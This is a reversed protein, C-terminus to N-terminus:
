TISVSVTSLLLAILEGQRRTDTKTFLSRLQSKLTERSVKLEEGIEQLDKGTVLYEALRVEAPTLGLFAQLSVSNITADCRPYTLFLVAQAQPMATLEPLGRLPYATLMAFSRLGDSLRMMNSRDAGETAIEDRIAAALLDAFQQAQRASRPKVQGNSILLYDARGLASHGAANAYKLKGARDVLLVPSSLRDVLAELSRAQSELRGMRVHLSMARQLHPLFRNAKAILKVDYQEQRQPRFFGLCGLRGSGVAFYAGLLFRAHFRNLDAVLASREFTPADGVMQACNFFKGPNRLAFHRRPDDEVHYKLYVDLGLPDVGVVSAQIWHGALDLFGYQASISEHFVVLKEVTEAMAPPDGVSGYIQGIFDATEM